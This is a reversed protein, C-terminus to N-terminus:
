LILYSTIIFSCLRVGLHEDSTLAAPKDGNTPKLFVFNV